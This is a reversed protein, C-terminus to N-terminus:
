NKKETESCEEEEKEEEPHDAEAIRLKGGCNPCKDFVGAEWETRREV